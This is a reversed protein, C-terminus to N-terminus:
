WTSETGDALSKLHRHELYQNVEQCLDELQSMCGELASRQLVVQSIDEPKDIMQVAAYAFQNIARITTKLEQESKIM